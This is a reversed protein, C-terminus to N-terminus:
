SSIPIILPDIKAHGPVNRSRDPRQGAPLGDTDTKSCCVRLGTPSDRPINSDRVRVRRPRRGASGVVVRASDGVIVVASYMCFSSAATRSSPLGTVYLHTARSSSTLTFVRLAQEERERVLASALRHVDDRPPGARAGLALVDHAEDGAARVGDLRGLRREVLDGRLVDM